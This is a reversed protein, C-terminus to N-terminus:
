LELEVLTVDNDGNDIVDGASIITNGSTGEELIITYETENTITSNNGSVRIVRTEDSDIPGDARHFVITHSDHLINMIDHAGVADPSPLLTLELNQGSRNAGAFDHLPGNSFNGSSNIVNANRPLNYNSLGCDIASSDTITVETALWLRFGGRMKKVVTNEVVVSGGGSYVRIGDESLSHMEDVPIPNGDNDLYGNRYPLSDTSTEALMDNTERVAGEVLTNRITTNDAPSQMFIGHCFSRQQLVAHDITTGVGTVVIGCRKSLGFTNGAGIGFTSGYGYPFSGRVTLHIGDILNADGRIAMVPDGRLGYSLSGDINYGVFDTIEQDERAYTDEFTGGLLTNNSGEMVLYNERATSGVPVDVYVDVLDITNNSGSFLLNRSGEPLDAISYNGSRMIITQNDQTIADRLESLTQVTWDAKTDIQNIVDIEHISWWSNEDSGTQDIKIYQTDTDEFNITTVGSTGVGTAITTDWNIGDVSTLVIYGRPYDESSETHSLKITNITYYDGLDISLWQADAQLEKTTWRTSAVSDVSLLLDATNHSADLVWAQRDLQGSIVIPDAPTEVDVDTETETETETQTETVTQTESETETQSETETITQTETETETESETETQTVTETQTESETVTQTVTETETESETVTQTVTETETPTQTEFRTDTQTQSEEPADDKEVQCGNIAIALLTLNLTTIFKM